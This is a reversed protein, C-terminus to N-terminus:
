DGAVPVLASEPPSQRSLAAANRKCAFRFQAMRSEMQESLQSLSASATSSEHASSASEGVSRVIEHLSRNLEETTVAQQEAAAAIQAMISDVTAVSQEILTFTQGSTQALAVGEAISSDEKRTKELASSAQAQVGVIMTEIENTASGAQEALRRVESAVVAFGKGHEGARAAEIAANLALLNTQAAIERILSAARSIEQSQTALEEITRAAVSSQDAIESMRAGIATMAHNGERVSVSVKRASESAISADRAVEAISTAMETLASSVQETQTRQDDTSVAAQRSSVSLQTAAAAVQSGVSAVEGLIRCLAAKVRNICLSLRGLADNTHVEIDDGSLDQGAIAELAQQAVRVRAGVIRVTVISSVLAVAFGIGIFLVSLWLSRRAAHEQEQQRQGSLREMYAVYSTVTTQINKSLAVSTPLEALMAANNGTRGLVFMKQLETEGADWTSKVEALQHLATPDSSDARLQALIAAFKRSAEISRQDGHEAPQLFFARSTAQERQQLMALEEALLAHRAEHAATASSKQVQLDGLISIGGAAAASLLVLGFGLGMLQELGRRKLM